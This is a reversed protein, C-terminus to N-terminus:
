LQLLASRKGCEVHQADVFVDPLSPKEISCRPNFAPSGSSGEGSPVIAPHVKFPDDMISYASATFFCVNLLFLM